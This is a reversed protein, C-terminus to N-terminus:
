VIAGEKQEELAQEKAWVTYFHHGIRAEPPPPTMYDGYSHRLMRDYGGPIPFEGDEFPVYLTKELDERRYINEPLPSWVTCAVYESQEYPKRRAHQELRHIFYASGHLKAWLHGALKLPTRLLGHTSPTFRKQACCNTFQADRTAHRLWAQAEDWTDGCGDLPYVDVFLGLGYDRIGQYDVQYRTDTFRAIPFVYRPEDDVTLLRFPALAQRNRRCYDVLRDYDPRPMGVDLDDDWPIFGRHRVAGILTGYFLYYRLGQERCIADLRKLVELTGEQVQRLTMKKM